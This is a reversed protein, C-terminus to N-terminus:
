KYTESGRSVHIQQEMTPYRNEMKPTGINLGTKKMDM